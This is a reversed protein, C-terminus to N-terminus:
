RDDGRGVEGSDASKKKRTTRLKTQTEIEKIQGIAKGFERDVPQPKALQATHFKEYEGEARLKAVEASIKGAHTLIERDSLKLFDDLKAIWDSMHMPQKNLAQLEAFELYATVIRNLAELEEGNLYNKAISVDKKRIAGHPSNGWSMLGMNPQSADAREAIIEAATHGHAAWHMKNQVTKFFLQSTEAKGDYDISTAYIDLVKQYFLRESSRIDRIRALLEEFYDDGLTRGAKLREDDMTFGKVLLEGLRAIAWQRFATGRASRVRMGVALIAELSYHDLNRTVQRNGETQVIRFKRITAESSLEGESYINALHENVTPVSVQYLDAMLRQTLWVTQGDLRVQLNLGGDQYILIQGAPPPAALNEDANSTM